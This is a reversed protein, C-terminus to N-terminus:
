LYANFLLLQLQLLTISKSYKSPLTLSYSVSLLSLHRSSAQSVPAWLCHKVTEYSLRKQSHFLGGQKWLEREEEGGRNTLESRVRDREGMCKMNQKPREVGESSEEKGGDGESRSDVEKKKQM